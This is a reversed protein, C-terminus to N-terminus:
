LAIVGCSQGHQSLGDRTLDAEHVCLKTDGTSLLSSLLSAGDTFHHTDFCNM